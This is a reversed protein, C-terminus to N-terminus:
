AKFGSELKVKKAKLKQDEKVLKPKELAIPVNKKAETKKKDEKVISKEVIVAILANVSCRSAQLEDL